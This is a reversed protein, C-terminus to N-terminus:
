SILNKIIKKTNIKNIITKKKLHRKRKKKKKTLIHQLNSKKYKFKNNSLKRIRKIVSKKTKIKPM